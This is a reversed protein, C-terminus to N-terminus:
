NEILIAVQVEFSRSAGLLSLMESCLGLKGEEDSDAEKRLKAAVLAALIASNDASQVAASNLCSNTFGALGGAYCVDLIKEFSRTLLEM